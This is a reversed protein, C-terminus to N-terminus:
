DPEQRYRRAKKPIIVGPLARLTWIHVASSLDIPEDLSGGKISINTREKDGHWIRSGCDPCFFCDLAHGSDALRSWQKPTGRVLRFDSRNVIVSIGFASASQRRCETCHCVYIKQPPAM